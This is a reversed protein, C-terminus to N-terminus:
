EEPRGQRPDFPRASPSADPVSPWSPGPDQESSADPLALLIPVSALAIVFIGVAHFFSEFITDGAQSHIGIMLAGAVIMGLAAAIALFLRGNM